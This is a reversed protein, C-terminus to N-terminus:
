EDALLCNSLIKQFEPEEIMSEYTWSNHNFNELASEQWFFLNALGDLGYQEFVLLTLCEIRADTPQLNYQSAIPQTLVQQYVDFTQPLIKDYNIYCRRPNEKRYIIVFQEDNFIPMGNTAVLFFKSRTGSFKKVYMEGDVEYQMWFHRVGRKIITANVEGANQDVYWVNIYKNGFYIAGALFVIGVLATVANSYARGQAAEQRRKFAAYRERAAKTAAAKARKVREEEAKKQKEPSSGTYTPPNLLYSYAETIRLFVEKAGPEKNVDPHYKM